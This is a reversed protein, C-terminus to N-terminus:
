FQQNMTEPAPGPPDRTVWYSKASPDFNMKLPDRNFLQRILGIPIITLLFILGLVVPNVVKFLILGLKTWATNLPSLWAPALFGLVVLVIGVAALVTELWGFAFSGFSWGHLGVRLVSIALLIGGVTLGFGRDTSGEIEDERTFSEHTSM